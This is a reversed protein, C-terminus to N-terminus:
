VLIKVVSLDGVAPFSSDNQNLVLVEIKAGELNAKLMDAEIMDSCSYVIVWDEPHLLKGEYEEKSILQTNCDPCVTIGDHYEYECKPCIM